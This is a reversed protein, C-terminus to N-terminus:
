RYFLESSFSGLNRAGQGSIFQIQGMPTEFAAPGARPTTLNPGRSWKGTKADFIECSQLANLGVLSGNAGGVHLSKGNGLDFAQHFMRAQSMAGASTWQNTRSDYIEAKNTPAGPATVTMSSGGGAILWRHPDLRISSYGGHPDAMAPGKTIKGTKPDFIDCEKLLAPIKIPGIFNWGAGGAVLIRGDALKMHTHQIRPHNMDPGRTWTNTKPDYIETEYLTSLLVTVINGANPPKSIGGTVWVKGNPLLTAMHGGRKYIMPAIRSFKQTKPDWVEVTDQPAQQVDLGGALMWRGDLLETVSHITRETTLDPGKTWRDNVVDYIESSKLPVQSMINGQGGASVMWQGNGYPLVTAFARTTTLKAGRDRFTGKAGFRTVAPNSLRGILHKTGPFDIGHYFVTADKFGPKNPVKMVPTKFSLSPPLFVGGWSLGLLQHGVLLLRPDSPDILSLPTPGPTIGLLIACGKGTKGPGLELQLTGPYTGGRAELKLDQAKGSPANAAFLYFATIAFTRSRV